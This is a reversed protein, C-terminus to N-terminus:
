PTAYDVAAVLASRLYDHDYGLKEAVSKRTPLPFGRGRSKEMGEKGTLYSILEWAAEKHKRQQNMIYAFTYVMTGKINKTKPVEATAFDIQLFTEQLYPIAWNGEIVMSIKGQGFMDSGSSAGVDSKLASIRDKRYQYIVLQL